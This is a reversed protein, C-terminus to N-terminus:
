QHVNMSLPSLQPQSAGVSRLAWRRVSATHRETFLSFVWAFILCGLMVMLVLFWESPHTIRDETGFGTAAKCLASLLFLLPMHTAYLSYSFSAMRKHLPWYFFSRSAEPLFRSTVLLLHLASALILDTIFQIGLNASMDRRLFGRIGLLVALLLVTPIAPHRFLPKVWVRASVGFGWIIFGLLYAPQASGLALNLLVGGLGLLVRTRMSYRSCFMALFLPFSIYFWMEIALTGIPGNSGYFTVFFNQLNALNGLFILWSSHYQIFENVWEPRVHWTVRDFLGCFLLAPILVLYVRVLRDVFYKKWPIAGDSRVLKLLPGGVLFGSLVYFVTVAMHGFGASVTWAYVGATRLPTPTAAFRAVMLNSTHDVLVFFASLWRLCDLIGSM